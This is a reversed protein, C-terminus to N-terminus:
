RCTHYTKFAVVTQGSIGNLINWLKYIIWVATLIIVKALM